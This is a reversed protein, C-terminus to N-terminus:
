IRSFNGGSIEGAYSFQTLLREALDICNNPSSRLKREQLNLKNVVGNFFAPDKKLLIKLKCIKKEIPKLETTRGCNVLRTIESSLRPKCNGLECLVFDLYRNLEHTDINKM